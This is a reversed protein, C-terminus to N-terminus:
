HRSPLTFLVELHNILRSFGRDDVFTFPQDDHALMEVILDEIAKARPDNRAFKKCKEFTKGIHRLGLPKKAAPKLNSPDKAARTDEFAKLVKDFCHSHKQHGILNSTSFSTSSKSGRPVQKSCKNCIVLSKDDVSVKFFDWM